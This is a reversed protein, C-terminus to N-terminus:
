AAESHPAFVLRQVSKYTLVSNLLRRAADVVVLLHSEGGHNARRLV